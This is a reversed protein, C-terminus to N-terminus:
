DNRRQDQNQNRNDNWQNQRYPPRQNGFYQTPPGHQQNFGQRDNVQAQLKRFSKTLEDIKDEYEEKTPVKTKLAKETQRTRPPIYVQTSPKMADMRFNNEQELQQPFLTPQQSLSQHANQWIRNALTVTQQLELRPQESIKNRIDRHIGKMFIQKAVVATVAADYRARKIQTTIRGYFLQPSENMGQVMGELIDKALDQSDQDHYTEELWEIRAEYRDRLEQVLAADVLNPVDARIIGGAIAAEYATRAPEEILTDLIFPWRAPVINNIVFYRQLENTFKEVPRALPDFGDFIPPQQM